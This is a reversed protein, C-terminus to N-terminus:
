SCPVSTSTKKKSKKNINKSSGWDWFGSIGPPKLNRKACYPRKGMSQTPRKKEGSLKVRRVRNPNTTQLVNFICQSWPFNRGSWPFTPTKFLHDYVSSERSIRTYKILETNQKKGAERLRRHHSTKLLLRKNRKSHHRRTTTRSVVKKKENTKALM